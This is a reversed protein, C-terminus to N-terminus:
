KIKEVRESYIWYTRDGLVFSYWLNGKTNTKSGTIAIVDGKRFRGAINSDGEDYSTTRFPPNDATVRHTPATLNGSYIWNGNTLRFWVNGQSNTAQGNVTVISGNMLRSLITDPAYPRARVPTDARTTFRVGSATTINLRFEINCGLNYCFGRDNWNHSSCPMTLNDSFIWNGDTLRYWVNGQSNTARGNVTVSRGSGLRSLITDPAYPRARVPTDDRTTIRSGSVSSISLSFEVNCNSNNCFGRDDWNHSSCSPATTSLNGSYIWNGDTLRYWANGQSNTARSNVTVSAGNALRSLITDPAYPRARVPTDERTTYRLGSVEELVLRFETTCAWQSCFGRDDWVHPYCTPQESTLNGSYIWNGDALRYWINGQSNTARGNVAVGTGSALRTLITDPAYPRARVPTDDRTAFRTGSAATIDLRFEINCDLNSCFGRDNWNHTNCHSNLNGSYIWNGDTLRYWVNGQSNTSRGNVTVSTGNALRNLITDPAYPRARVPTDDRTTIRSGSVSSINLSFEVNCGLNDCFGIDNWIHSTCVIPTPNPEPTPSPTPTPTPKPTPTPNPTPRPTPTTAVPEKDYGSAFIAGSAVGRGDATLEPVIGFAM